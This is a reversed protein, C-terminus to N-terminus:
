PRNGLGEFYADRPPDGLLQMELRKVADPTADALFTELLQRVSTREDYEIFSQTPESRRLIQVLEHKALRRRKIISLTDTLVRSRAPDLKSWHDKYKIIDAFSDHSVLARLGNAVLLWLERDTEISDCLERLESITLRSSLIASLVARAAGARTSDKM